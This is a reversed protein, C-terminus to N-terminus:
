PLSSMITSMAYEDIIVIVFDSESSALNGDDTLSSKLNSSERRLTVFLVSSTFIELIRSIKCFYLIQSIIVVIKM